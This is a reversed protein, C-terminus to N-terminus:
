KTSLRGAMETILEEDTNSCGFSNIAEKLLDVYTDYREPVIYKVINQESGRPFAKVLENIRMDGTTTGRMPGGDRAVSVVQDITTYEVERFAAVITIPDCIIEGIGSQEYRRNRFSETMKTVFQSVPTEMSTTISDWEDYPIMNEMCLEWSAWVMKLHRLCVQLADPDAYANFEATATINGPGMLCGGMWFFEKIRSAFADDLAIAVAFNTLPGLAIVTLEGDHEKAMTTLHMAAPGKLVTVQDLKDPLGADGLGDKGHYFAADVQPCVLPKSCGCLIPIDTRQCVDLIKAVNCVVQHVGVNGAVTSIAVVVHGYKQALHLSLILAIADDVGADTDIIVKKPPTSHRISSIHFSPIKTLRHLPPFSVM